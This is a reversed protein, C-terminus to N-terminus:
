PVPFVVWSTKLWDGGSLGVVGELGVPHQDLREPALAAVPGLVLGPLEARDAPAGVHDVQARWAFSFGGRSRVWSRKPLRM